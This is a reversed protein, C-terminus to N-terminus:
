IRFANENDQLSLATLAVARGLLSSLPVGAHAHGITEGELQLAVDTRLRDEIANTPRGHVSLCILSLGLAILSPEEAWHSELFALSRIVAPQDRRDQLALLALATTPVHSFLDQGLVNPNGFNWGGTRGCRDFLMRNAEDIRAHSTADAIVGARMAKKLALAGWATPEVWSFTADTWSWGQLSNDQTFAPSPPAQVGKSGALAALLRRVKDEGALDPQNLWAFAVLANFGINVPWRADEVLWGDPRQCRTLFDRHNSDTGPAGAVRNGALALIAWSTPELRSAKGRYYSWGGSSNAASNLENALTSRESGVAPM